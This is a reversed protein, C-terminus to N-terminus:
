FDYRLNGFDTVLLFRAALCVSSDSLRRGNDRLADVCEKVYYGWHLKYPPTFVISTSNLPIPAEWFAKLYTPYSPLFGDTNTRLLNPSRM